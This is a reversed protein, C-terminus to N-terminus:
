VDARGAQLSSQVLMPPRAHATMCPAEECCEAARMEGPPHAWAASVAKTTSHKHCICHDQWALASCCLGTHLCCRLDPIVNSTRTVMGSVSILNDVDSPNLDRIVRTERLNYPKCQMVVPRLM